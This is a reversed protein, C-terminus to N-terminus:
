LRFFHCHSTGAQAIRLPLLYFLEQQSLCSIDASSRFVITEKNFHHQIPFHVGLGQARNSNAGFPTIWAVKGAIPYKAPDDLLSLILYIEDGILYNKSTPLFIGGNNLLPM